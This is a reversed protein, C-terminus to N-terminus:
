ILGRKKALWEPIAFTLPIPERDREARMQWKRFTELQEEDPWTIEGFPLIHGDVLNGNLYRKEGHESCLLSAKLEKHIFLSVEVPERGGRPEDSRPDDFLRERM